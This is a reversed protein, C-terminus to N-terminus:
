AAAVDINDPTISMSAIARLKPNADMVNSDIRDPLLSFLIDCHRVGANLQDRPIDQPAVAHATVGESAEVRVRPGAFASSHCCSASWSFVWPVIAIGGQVAALAADPIKPTADRVRLVMPISPDHGPSSLHPTSGGLETVVGAVQPLVHSLAPGAVRTVLIDGPAVRSLECECNVVVARGAGWGVGAPHGQIGPHQLWIEDPVHARVVPLPRAPLS